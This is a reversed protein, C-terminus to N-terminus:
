VNGFREMKKKLYKDIKGLVLAILVMDFVNGYVLAVSHHVKWLQVGEEHVSFRQLRHHSGDCGLM